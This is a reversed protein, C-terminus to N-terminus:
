LVTLDRRPLQLAEKTLIQSCRRMLPETLQSLLTSEFQQSGAAADLFSREPQSVLAHRVEGALELAPVTKWGAVVPQPSDRGRRLKAFRRRMEAVVDCKPMLHRTEVVSRSEWEDACMISNKRHSGHADLILFGFRLPIYSFDL